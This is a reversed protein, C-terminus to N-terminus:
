HNGRSIIGGLGEVFLLPFDFAQLHTRLEENSVTM